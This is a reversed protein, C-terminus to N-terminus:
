ETEIEAIAAIRLDSSHPAQPNHEVQFVRRDDVAAALGDVRHHGASM